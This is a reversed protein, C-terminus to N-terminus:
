FQGYIFEQTSLSLSLIILLIIFLYVGWRGLANESRLKQRVSVDHYIARDVKYLGILGIALIFWHVFNLGVSFITGDILVNFNLVAVSQAFLIRIEGFSPVRFFVMGIAFIFYTKIVRLINFTATETKINHKKYFDKFIPELIQELVIILWFWVGEGIIYKWHSGHWLGMCLWVALMAIFTPIRKGWKKGLKAKLSSGMSIFGDSKLIPNMIYNKLWRGLTIHWRQWIEQVTKSFFPARFNEPLTIGLCESVGMIMDMCGGFDAYLQIPFMLIAFWIYAGPYTVPDAYITDVMVAIRDSIVKKEFFGWAFRIAGNAVREYEFRHESVLEKGIEKYQSIPGSIMQPFYGAFLALKFINKEAEVREWYCDLLYSILQLIYFSIGLSALWNVQPLSVQVHLKTLVFGLTNLALNTYKLVALLLINFVITLTVMIKKTKETKGDFHTSCLYVSIISAILYVLTYIRTYLCYFVISGLLLWIWQYKGPLIWYVFLIVAIFIVFFFSTLEM